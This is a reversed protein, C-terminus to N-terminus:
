YHGLAQAGFAIVEGNQWCNWVLRPWHTTKTCKPNFLYPQFFQILKFNQMNNTVYHHMNGSAITDNVCGGCMVLIQNQLSCKYELQVLRDYLSSCQDHQNSSTHFRLTIHDMICFLCLFYSAHGFTVHHKVTTQIHHKVTDVPRIHHQVIDICDFM